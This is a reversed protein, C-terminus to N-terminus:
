VEFYDNYNWIDSCAILACNQAKAAQEDTFTHPTNSEDEALITRLTNGKVSIKYVASIIATFSTCAAIYRGLGWSLHLDDRYVDTPQSGESTLYTYIAKGTPIIVDIGTMKFFSKSVENVKRWDDANNDRYKWAQYNAITSYPSVMRVRRIFEAAKDSYQSWDTSTAAGNAIVIVDWQIKTLVEKVPCNAYLTQRLRGTSENIEPHKVALTYESAEWRDLLDEFTCASKFYNGTTIKLGQAFCTEAVGFYSDKMFSSGIYLISLGESLSKKPLPNNIIQPYEFEPIYPKTEKYIQCNKGTVSAYMYKAKSFDKITVDNFVSTDSIYAGFYTSYKVSTTNIRGLYGKGTDIDHDEEYFSLIMSTGAAKQGEFYYGYGEKYLYKFVNFGSYTAAIGTNLIHKNSIVEVPKYTERGLLSWDSTSSSINEALCKYFFRSGNSTFTLQRSKTEASISKLAEMINASEGVDAIGAENDSSVAKRAYLTLQEPYAIRKTGEPITIKLFVLTGSVIVDGYSLVQTLSADSYAGYVASEVDSNYIGILYFDKGIEESKVNYAKLNSGNITTATGDVAIARNNVTITHSKESFYEESLVQLMDDILLGQSASKFPVGLGEAIWSGNLGKIVSLESVNGLGFNSYDGEETAIYFVKNDETPTIPATSPTATGIYTYGDGTGENIANLVNRMIEATILGSDNDKITANILNTIEEKKM